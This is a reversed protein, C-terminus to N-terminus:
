AKTKPILDAKLADREAETVLEVEYVEYEGGYGIGFTRKDRYYANIRGCEGTAKVRVWSGVTILQEEILQKNTANMHMEGIRM